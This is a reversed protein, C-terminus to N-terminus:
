FHDTRVQPSLDTELHGGTNTQLGCWFGYFTQRLLFAGLTLDVHAAVDQEATLHSGDDFGLVWVEGEPLQAAQDASLPPVQLAGPFCLIFTLLLKMVEQIQDTSM